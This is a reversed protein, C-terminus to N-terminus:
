RSQLQMQTRTTMADYARRLTTNRGNVETRKMRFMHLQKSNFSIRGENVQLRNDYVDGTSCRRTIESDASQDRRYQSTVWYRGTM